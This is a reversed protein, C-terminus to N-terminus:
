ELIKKHTACGALYKRDEFKMFIAHECNKCVELEMSKGKLKLGTEM